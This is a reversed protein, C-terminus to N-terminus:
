VALSKSNGAAPAGCTGCDQVPVRRAPCTGWLHSRDAVIQDWPVVASKWTAVVEQYTKRCLYDFRDYGNEFYRAVLEALTGDEIRGLAFKHNLNTIEPLVTGDERVV